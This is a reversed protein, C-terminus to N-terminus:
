WSGLGVPIAFTQWRRPGGEKEVSVKFRHKNEYTLYPNLYGFNIQAGHGTILVATRMPQPGAVGGGGGDRM